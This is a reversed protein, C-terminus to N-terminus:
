GSYGTFQSVEAVSYGNNAMGATTLRRQRALEALGEVQWDGM